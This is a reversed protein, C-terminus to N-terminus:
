NRDDFNLLGLRDEKVSYLLIFGAGEDKKKSAAERVQHAMPVHQAPIQALISRWSDDDRLWTYNKLLSEFVVPSVDVALVPVGGSQLSTKLEDFKEQM